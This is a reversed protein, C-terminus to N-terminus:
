FPFFFIRTFWIIPLVSLIFLIITLNRIKLATIIKEPSLDEYAEGLVYQGPKELQVNLAGAMAAMPWGHNRSPTKSYDRIAIKWSNRPNKGLLFSAFVTKYRVGSKAIFFIFVFLLVITYLLSLLITLGNITFSNYIAMVRNHMTVTEMSVVNRVKSLVFDYNAKLDSDGPILKKAREYNLIAKGLEGKKFYSNGMNYYLNGSELGQDILGSYVKIADDYKGDEYFANAKYFIYGPDRERDIQANVPSLTIVTVLLFCLAAFKMFGKNM